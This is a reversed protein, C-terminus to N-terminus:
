KAARAAILYRACAEEIVQQVPTFSFQPLAQLLASNDYSTKLQAVRASEKSLVPNSGTFVAKLRETRWALEALFPTAKLHPGKKGLGKAIADFIAQFTCNAASAILRKQHVTSQLLQVAAEAVDEVGVFGNVGTTYWPFGDYVNKFLVCSTEDWNGFGLIMSPNLMAGQLGEAFGRWVEMEALHKTIGYHTNTKNEEWAHEETIKEAKASRGLAAISSIHVFRKVGAEIAANVMNATGDVNTQYMQRRDAANYSVVAAAHIVGDMGQLADHLLVVDLVDGQVWEVKEFVAAPIFHPLRVSRCLARVPINKEVLNKIIYAGLFGTGGTVFVM